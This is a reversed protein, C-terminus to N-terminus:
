LVFTIMLLNAYCGMVINSSYVAMKPKSCVSKFGSPLVIKSNLKWSNCFRKIKMFQCFVMWSCTLKRYLKEWTMLTCYVLHASVAVCMHLVWTNLVLCEQFHTRSLIKAVRLINSKSRFNHSSNWGDRTAGLSRRVPSYTHWHSTTQWYKSTCELSSTGGVSWAPAYRSM